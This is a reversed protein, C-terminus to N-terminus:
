AARKWAGFGFWQVGDALRGTTEDFVGDAGVAAVYDEDSMYTYQPTIFSLHSDPGFGAQELLAGYDQDRFTKYFPENNYYADWDLYFSDYPSMEANPPLEMNILLGGPRLVRRAESLATVIDKVSLEHLFMSSFVVDFSNDPFDLSTANMQRFHVPVNQAVARAHAYRLSPAAVDIATVSADPFVKAWACSNHGITCGVDLIASPRFDPHKVRIYNAMSHGIDDLNAGMLGFSFVNLGHDYVAGATCDDAAYEEHYSGPALHVDVKAVNAPLELSPDLTLSGGVEEANAAHDAAKRNLEDIQDGLPRQVARWVMEQANYRMSSYFKFYLDDKMARHVAPGDAPAAGAARTAQPEIQHEFRQKMATAMDNLIYGRLSCIFDQKAVARRDGPFYLDHRLPQPM